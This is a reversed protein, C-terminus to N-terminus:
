RRSQLRRRILLGSALTALALAIGGGTAPLERGDGTPASGGGGDDDRDRGGGTPGSGGSGDNDDDDAADRDWDLLNRFVEYGSYTIGYSGLGYPHDFEETPTTLMAGAIRVVGKGLELEGLTVDEAGVVGVVRGGAKEWAKKDVGWQPMSGVDGGSADHISYGLPVPETIQHRHNDGEAAGPQNVRAALPDDYTSSAGKDASFEMYGAYVTQEFITQEGVLGMWELARLSDDTLVLNGGGLVFKKVIDAMDNRDARTFGGGRAAVAATAPEGSFKVTIDLPGPASGAWNHIELRYHGPRPKFLTLTELSTRGSEGSAVDDTWTGDDLQRQLYLDPDIVTGSEVRAEMKANGPKIDFEFFHSSGPVRTGAGPAPCLCPETATITDQPNNLVPAESYGPLFANDAAILSDFKELDVKGALVDDIDVPVLKKDHALFPQLSDFFDMNSVNYPRQGPDPWAAEDTFSLDVNFEAPVDGTVRLRYLGPKPSNVDIQAGAQQYTDAQNYYTNVTQWNEDEPDTEGPRRPPDSEPSRYMDIALENMTGPSVAGLNSFTFQASIGGNYFGDDPGKVEFEHYSDGGQHDIVIDPEDAQPPGDFDEPKTSLESGKHRIRDPNHLYAAKGDYTFDTNEGVLSYHMMAYILSKNGDVHLQEADPAFCTGVGCNSLHSLSMENDIGDANLGMPSDMWGGLDGTVTYDITDWITGWQVAYIRETPDCNAPDNPQPDTGQEVCAPPTDNSKILPSWSLRTEADAWAGKVFQLVRRDKDYPRESGGILTFSFARDILQGHLDIGGTWNEKIDKLAKGVARTEPESWPTFPRFTFGKTPWDRNMDMGNGNYRQYFFGPEAEGDEAKHAARQKDGRRWGDPNSLMFWVASKKLAEGASISEEPMTELLPHPNDPGAAEQACNAPSDADGHKECSGWTALDEIARIGGEIGAREIGHISLAYAFHERQRIPTGTDEEDTVRVLYMPAKDRGLDNTALGASMGDGKAQNIVDDFRGGEKSLDYVQVFDPFLTDALYNLGTITEDWGLFDVAKCNANGKAWPSQGLPVQAPSPWYAHPDPFVRSCAEYPPVGDTAVPFAPAPAAPLALAVLAVAVLLLGLRGSLQQKGM